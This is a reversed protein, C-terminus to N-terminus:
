DLAHRQRTYINCLIVEDESSLLLKTGQQKQTIEAGFEIFGSIFNSRKEDLEKGYFWIFSFFHCAISILYGGRM